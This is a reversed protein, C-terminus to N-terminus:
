PMVNIRQRAKFLSHALISIKFRMLIYIRNECNSWSLPLEDFALMMVVFAIGTASAFGVATKTASTPRGPM